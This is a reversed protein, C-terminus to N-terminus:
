PSMRGVLALLTDGYRETLTPGVGHIRQLSAGDRPRATAIAGLVRDTLIRFAPVRRKRAEALRWARLAEVLQPSALDFDDQISIANSISRINTVKQAAWHRGATELVWAEGPDAILFSNHYYFPHTYGCNGGQGYQELLATLTNLAARASDSRELALRLLDMGTLAPGKEYPIRTFVAENGITVGFENTGMEAGWMWVPKSLLVAFTEEVQPIEIYTCRLASGSTHRTRPLLVVEHMENPERDSNKAFIVSGDATATGLAVLTDCM